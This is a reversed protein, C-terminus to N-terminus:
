PAKALYSQGASVAFNKHLRFDNVVVVGRVVKTLTGDCRDVMEWQTGRATAAGYRGRTRFSGHVSARLLSLVRPSARAVQATVDATASQPACAQSTNLTTELDLVALGAQSRRQLVAFLGGSFHGDQVSSTGTGPAGGTPAYAARLDVAGHTTDLGSGVPINRDETGLRFAPGTPPRVIVVGSILGIDVSQAFRPPPLNAAVSSGGGALTVLVAGAALVSCLVRM